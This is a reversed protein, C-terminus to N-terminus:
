CATRPSAPLERCMLSQFGQYATRFNASEFTLHLEDANPEWLSKPLAASIRGTQTVAEDSGYVWVQNLAGQYEARLTQWAHWDPSCKGDNCDTIIGNTKVAFIDAAGLFGEYVEARKERDEKKRDERGQAEQAELQTRSQHWAGLYSFGGGIVAGILAVGFGLM